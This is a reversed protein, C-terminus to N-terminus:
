RWRVQGSRETCRIGRTEGPQPVARLLSEPVRGRRGEEPVQSGCLGFFHSPPYTVPPPQCSPAANGFPLLHPPLLIFLPLSSPTQGAFVQSLNIKRTNFCIRGCNTVIVSKDHFPYDLDPLGEYKM